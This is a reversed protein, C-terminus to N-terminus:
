PKKKEDEEDKELKDIELLQKVLERGIRFLNKHTYFNLKFYMNYQLCM